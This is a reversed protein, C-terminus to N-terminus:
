FMDPEGRVIVVGDERRHEAPENRSDTTRAARKLARACKLVGEGTLESLVQALRWRM